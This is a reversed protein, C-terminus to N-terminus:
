QVPVARGDVLRVVPIDREFLRGDPLRFRGSLGALYLQPDARLLELWPVLNMADFGMAHLRSLSPNDLHRYISEARRRQEGQATFDLFWPAMPVSIGDLDEDRSPDPAGAIIQSTALVPVDGAGFFRLQPRILRGDESRAALFVLDIDTRRHPEYELTRNLTQGLQRARQNSQELELLVELLRSHDVQEPAYRARGMIRGGGLEFNDIFTEAVRRGWDTDQFLVLVRKHGQVLAHAAALEAEEEPLLGVAHVMGSHRALSAQDTPHNLMLLPLGTDPLNILEDVQNRELPGLIFDAGAERAEFLAAVVSEPRDDVYKFDLQPRRDPPLDLWASVIGDRVAATARAMGSRGPLVVAIHRPVARTQKWLSVWTLAQWASYGTAPFRAEWDLLANELLTPDLLHSRAAVALALWASVDARHGHESQLHRLAALPQEILLALALEPHFDDESIAAELAKFAQRAPNDLARGLLEELMQHRMVLAAPLTEATEALLWGATSLDGANLALEARALKFRVAHATDLRQPEVEALAKLADDDRGAQLWTEAARVRFQGAREPQDEALALWAQAASELEGGRVMAEIREIDPDTAPDPRTVPQTPACAALFVILSLATPIFKLMDPIIFSPVPVIGSM